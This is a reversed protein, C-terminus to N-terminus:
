KKGGTENTGFPKDLVIQEGTDTVSIVLKDIGGKEIGVKKLHDIIGCMLRNATNPHNDILWDPDNEGYSDLVPKFREVVLDDIMMNILEQQPNPVSKLWLGFRNVKNQYLQNLDSRKIKKM